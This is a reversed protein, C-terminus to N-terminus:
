EEFSFLGFCATLSTNEVNEFESHKQLVFLQIAVMFHVYSICNYGLIWIKYFFRM